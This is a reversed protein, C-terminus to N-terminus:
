AGKLSHELIGSPELYPYKKMLDHMIYLYTISIASGNHKFVSKSFAHSM